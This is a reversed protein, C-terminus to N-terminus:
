TPPRSRAVIAEELLVRRNGSSDVELGRCRGATTAETGPNLRVTMRAPAARKVVVVSEGAEILFETGDQAVERVPGTVKLWRDKYKANAAVADAEYASVLDAAAAVIPDDVVPPGFGAGLHVGAFFEGAQDLAAAPENGTALGSVMLRVACREGVVVRLATLKGDQDAFLVERAAHDEHTAQRELLQKGNANTVAILLVDNIHKDRTAPGYLEDGANLGDLIAVSYEAGWAEARHRAEGWRLVLPNAQSIIEVEPRNPFQTSFIGNPDTFSTPIPRFFLYASLGTVLLVGAALILAIPSPGARRKPPDSAPQTAEAPYECQCSPCRVAQGAPEDPITQPVHCNPCTRTIPM